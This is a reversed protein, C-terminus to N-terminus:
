SVLIKALELLGQVVLILRQRQQAGQAGAGALGAGQVVDADHVLTEALSVLGEIEEILCQGNPSVDGVPRGLGRCEIAYASSVLSEALVTFGQVIEVLGQHYLPSHSVLGAFCAVEIINAAKIVGLAAEIQREVM